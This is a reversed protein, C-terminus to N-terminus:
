GSWEAGQDIWDKILQIQKDPLPKFDQGKKKKPMAEVDEGDVSVSGLLLKYMVSDKSNGPIIDKDKGNEGGKLAADRTDLRFGAAAKKRPNDLSHCKICSQKFIPQIDKAFDVKDAAQSSRGLGALGATAALAIAVTRFSGSLGTSARQIRVM